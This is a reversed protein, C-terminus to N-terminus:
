SQEGTPMRPVLDCYQPTIRRLEEFLRATEGPPFEYALPTAPADEHQICRREEAEVMEDFTM